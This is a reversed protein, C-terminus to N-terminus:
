HRAPAGALFARVREVTNQRINAYFLNYDYIHYSGFLTLADAFGRRHGIPIAVDLLGQACRAGTLQPVIAPLSMAPLTAPPAGPVAGLNEAAAASGDRSWNLPNVCVTPRDGLPEYHGDRWLRTHARRSGDGSGGKVSNWDILCGTDHASSCIPLGLRGIDTPILYGIIYAAVLRQQLQRGLIREQVLRLAHLSGQSHSAIIFPRGHNEHELYYDFARQVDSYALDLAQEARPDDTRFVRLVAQRYRPAFIRCCANFVSAQFRMVGEDVAKGTRGPEDFRANWSGGALYTTPHIFFVDVQGRAALSVPALDPPTAEAESPQGPWAAWASLQSYDPAPPAQQETADAAVGTATGAAVGAAVGSMAGFGLGIAIGSLLLPRLSRRPKVATGAAAHLDQTTRGGGDPAWGPPGFLHGLRSRWDKAQYLDRTMAIWEHLAVYLPNYSQLPHVLGYRCPVVTNEEICTGFLRDFVVVVGGYNADLYEVNSAHHVRHHSPTNFFWELPGLRPLWDSHLWFQYLLNLGLAALVAAPHFGLWVLPLFFLASGSLNGTWGLRYAAAFNLQNPSHHVAHTAWFWRVRHSTRHYWYYCFEEACFLLAVAGVGDLPVTTLRHRWVFAFLQSLLGLPVLEVLRRGVLDGLSCLYGRWDYDGTRLSQVLGELTASGLVVLLLISLAHARASM